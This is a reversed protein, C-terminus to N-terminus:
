VYQFYHRLSMRKTLKDYPVRIVAQGRLVVLIGDVQEGYNILREGAPVSQIRLTSRLLDAIIADDAAEPFHRPLPRKEGSESTVTTEFLLKKLMPHLFAQLLKIDEKSRSRPEKALLRMLYDGATVPGLRQKNPTTRQEKPKSQSRTRMQASRPSGAREGSRGIGREGLGPSDYDSEGPVRHTM